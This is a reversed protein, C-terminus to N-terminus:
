PFFLYFKVYIKEIKKSKLYEKLLIRSTIIKNENVNIGCNFLKKVYKSFPYSSNNTLFCYDINNENCKEIIEKGGKIAQNDRYFVGDLDFIIFKIKNLIINTM